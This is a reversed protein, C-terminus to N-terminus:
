ESAIIVPTGTQIYKELMIIDNNFMRICGSSSLHGISEEDSNGHIAIGSGIGPLRGSVSKIVGNSINKKYNVRDNENPYSIAFFRPGYANNGLDKKHDNYKYHGASAKFYISNLVKLRKYAITKKDADMSLMQTVKYIGEPTRSDGCRIKSGKDPNKGYGILYEVVKGSRSYVELKFNKKSVYIIYKSDHNELVNRISTKKESSCAIFIILSSLLLLIKKM